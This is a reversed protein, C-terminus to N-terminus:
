GNLEEAEDRLMGAATSLLLSVWRRKATDSVADLLAACSLYLAALQEPELAQVELSRVWASLM